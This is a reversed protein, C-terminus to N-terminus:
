EQAFLYGRSYLTELHSITNWCFDAEAHADGALEEVVKATM